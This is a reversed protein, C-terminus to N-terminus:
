GEPIPTLAMARLAPEGGPDAIEPFRCGPLVAVDYVEPVDAEFRLYGRTEGSELDVAWLGSFHEEFHESLPLDPDADARPRSLGVFALSDVIALGRTFGPLRAIVEREGSAPDLACVAGEGSECFWLRDRHWRPSNPVSLESAIVEASDVEILCGGRALGRRWGEPEDTSGLATVYAPRGDAVAVGTLHCRDDGAIESIFAPRWRPVVGRAQDLTALYSYRTAVLWLEDGASALEHTAIAGTLHRTRPILCADYGRERDLGALAEPAHRYRWVEGKTAVAFGDATIAIGTPQNLDRFHTNVRPGDRRACILKGTANTSLLLSAGIRDLIRALGGTHVSRVSAEADPTVTPRRSVPAALLDRAREAVGITAPLAAQLREERRAQAAPDPATLHEAPAGPVLGLDWELGLWACLRELEGAPDAEVAAWDVVCWREPPLEELDDLLIRTTTAWQAAAIEPVTSGALERWGPVLLLSWPPGPWEPLNPYTVFNGSRWAEVMSTVADRPQRYVYVFQADPFIADLFPLRLANRPTADLLRPTATSAEAAPIADDSQALARRLAARLSESTEAGADAATRRNSDHGRAAPRLEEAADFVERAERSLPRVGGVRGLEEFLYTTGSQPPAVVFIPRALDDM